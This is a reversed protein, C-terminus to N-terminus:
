VAETPSKETNKIKRNGFVLNIGFMGNITHWRSPLSIKGSGSSVWSWKLPLRDFLFYFQAFGARVGFGAGLSAYSRNNATFTLGTTLINGM